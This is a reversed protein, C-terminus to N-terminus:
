FDDDSIYGLLYRIENHPVYTYIDGHNQFITDRGDIFLFPRNWKFFEKTNAISPVFLKCFLEALLIGIIVSPIILLFPGVKKFLTPKGSPSTSLVQHFPGKQLNLKTRNDTIRLAIEMVAVGTSRARKCDIM